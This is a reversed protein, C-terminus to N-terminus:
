IILLLVGVFALLSGILKRSFHSREKLFIFAFIVILIIYSQSLPIVQSADGGQQYSAYITLAAISILFSTIIMLFLRKKDLFLRFKSIAKPRIALLLLPPFLSVIALYPLLEFYNLLFADNTFAIGACIAGILIFLHGKNLKWEKRRWNIVIIATIILLMGLIRKLDLPEKLFIIATMMTWISKSSWLIATESAEIIKLGKFLFWNALAYLITMLFLYFIFPKLPPLHFGTFAIYIFFLAAMMLQLVIAYVFPDSRKEKLLVRELLSSVSTFLIGILILFIWSMINWKILFGGRNRPPTIM